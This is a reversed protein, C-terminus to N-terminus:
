RNRSHGTLELGVLVADHDSSRYANPEYLDQEAPKKFSTDYDLIDPEDANIHWEAAGAIQGAMSDNALAHDLYGVQGDFVYGYAYEGGFAKVMDTYGAADLADIPDEHDYSNLDGIILRDPDGAGIWPEALWDALAQAAATRTVNCNGQGDGIDPDDVDNCDSGKSKLHNVAVTFKHDGDLPKFTQALAPRNKDDLFRPDVSSDLVHFAGVPEVTTTRYLLGLRIADTGIVGTDIYSYTGAGVLDNLGAALDAAPEVGPTNEMEMLGVVDADLQAIADLIKARQRSLENPQSADAGRCDLDQNGGCVNDAPDDNNGTGDDLADLTLFYNLVNFSAVKVDGDVSPPAAPRPNEQTYTADDTPHVRYLGFTHEVVGTIDTLTDGGRFRNALTFPTDVTGPFIPPSANQSGRGDDITIRRKAYEAALAVAEAGPEVVATPTDFRDRDPMPLGVVVENFRDFNFYESIVLSQPMTVRMGEYRELDGVATVPFTLEAAPPLEGTDCRTVTVGSSIQTQSSGSGTFERVGGSVQVVDGEVTGSPLGTRVFVGESTAPDSDRDTQEEEVFFGSLRASGTRDATVVGRVTVSTNVLPSTAGSGQVQSIKHTPATPCPDSPEPTVPPPAALFSQGTNAAGFTNAAEGAWTFDSPDNGPGGTLQLSNGVAGAGDEITAIDTSTQGAAPGNTAVFTGEYSLFQVVTTGHVLAVGDPSGNQLGTTAQTVFGWGNGSDTVSSPLGFTGYTGGGNGNYLVISWDSLDSGAPAAIEIAEGSDTSVNDYHIENIWVPSGTGPVAAAPTAISAVALPALLVPAAFLAALRRPSAFRIISMSPEM